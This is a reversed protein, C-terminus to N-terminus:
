DAGDSAHAGSGAASSHHRAEFPDLSLSNFRGNWMMVPYLATNVVLPSRRQNRPGTRGPGVVNNNQVGIALTQTDGFGNTPSHCGGCTNDRHLSHLEDFWLMRGLDVLKPNIKRGLNKEIRKQFTKQIDGTFGAASLVSALDRDLDREHDGRSRDHDEAAYVVSSAAPLSSTQSTWVLAGAWFLTAVAILKGVRM